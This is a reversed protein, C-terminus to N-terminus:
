FEMNCEIKEFLMGLHTWLVFYCFIRKTTHLQDQVQFMNVDNEKLRMEENEFHCFKNEETRYGTEIDIPEKELRYRTANKGRFSNILSIVTKGRASTPKMKCIRGFSSVTLRKSREM